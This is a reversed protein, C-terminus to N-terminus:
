DHWYYMEAGPTEYVRVPAGLEFNDSIFPYETVGRSFMRSRKAERKASELDPAAVFLVAGRACASEYDPGTTVGPISPDIWVYLNM